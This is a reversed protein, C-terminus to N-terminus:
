NMKSSLSEIEKKLVEVLNDLPVERQKKTAMDRLIGKGAALEDEGIILVKKAGLRDASKMQAKLGKPAYAMEVWLGDRRLDNVWKFVKKESAEGLGAVFLDPRDAKAAAARALPAHAVGVM